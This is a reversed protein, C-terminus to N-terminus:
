NLLKGDEIKDRTFCRFNEGDISANYSPDDALIYGRVFKDDSEETVEVYRIKGKYCFCVTDGRRIQNAQISEGAYEVDVEDDWYDWIEEDNDLNEDCDVDPHNFLSSSMASVFDSKVIYKCVRIKQANHDKPVSVADRPNIEVIVVKDGNSHYTGNPGAYDIGGCHLGAACENDRNDDVDNRKCEVVEGVGNYVKGQEDAQGSLLTISGGRKSWYNEGVTKYALFCGNDTVPLNKHALFDFLEEIARRSPNLYLNQMFLMLPEVPLGEQAFEIIRNSLTSHVEVGGRKVVGDEFTIDDSQSVLRAVAVEINVKSLFTDADESKVAELLEGYRPHERSVSFSQSNVITTFGAENRMFPFM